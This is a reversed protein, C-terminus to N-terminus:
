GKVHPYINKDPEHASCIFTSAGKRRAGIKVYRKTRANPFDLGAPIIAPNQKPYPPKMALQVVLPRTVFATIHNGKISIGIKLADWLSSIGDKSCAVPAYRMDTRLPVPCPNKHTPM